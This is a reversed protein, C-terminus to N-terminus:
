DLLKTGAGERGSTSSPRGLAGRVGAEDMGIEVGAIGAATIDAAATEAYTGTALATAAVAWAGHRTRKM